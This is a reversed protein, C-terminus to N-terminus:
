CLNASSRPAASSTRSSPTSRPSSGSNWSPLSAFGPASCASFGTGLRTPWACSRRRTASDSDCMLPDPSRTVSRQSRKRKSRQIRPQGRSSAPKKPSHEPVNSPKRPRRRLQCARWCPPGCAAQTRDSSPWRKRSSGPTRRTPSRSKGPRPVPGSASYPPWWGRVTESRTPSTRPRPSGRAPWPWSEQECAPMPRPLCCIPATSRIRPSRPRAPSGPRPRSSASDTRPALEGRGGM